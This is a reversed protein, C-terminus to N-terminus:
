QRITFYVPQIIKIIEEMAEILKSKKEKKPETIPFYREEQNTKTQYATEMKKM